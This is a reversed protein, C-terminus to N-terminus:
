FRVLVTFDGSTYGQVIRVNAGPFLRVARSKETDPDSYWLTQCSASRRGDLINFSLGRRSVRAMALCLVEVWAEWDQSDMDLRLGFVGSAVTYDAMFSPVASRVFRARPHSIRRCAADLMESSIDYGTYSGGLVRWRWGLWLWLAGYGCGVDNLSIGRRWRDSGMVSLLARFRAAQHRRGRWLVAEPVPGSQRLTFDYSGAIRELVTPYGDASLAGLGSQLIDPNTDKVQKDHWAKFGSVLWCM